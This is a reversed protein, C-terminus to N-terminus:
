LRHAGYPRSARGMIERCVCYSAIYALQRIAQGVDRWSQAVVDEVSIEVNRVGGFLSFPAMFGDTFGQRFAASKFKMFM